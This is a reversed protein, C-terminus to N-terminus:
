QLCRNGVRKNSCSPIGEGHSSCASSLATRGANLMDRSVTHKQRDRLGAAKAAPSGGVLGDAAAGTVLPAAGSGNIANGAGVGAGVGAGASAGCPAAGSAPLMCPQKETAQASSTSAHRYVAQGRERHGQAETASHPSTPLKRSRADLQLQAGAASWHPPLSPTM